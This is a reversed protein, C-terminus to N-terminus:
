SAYSQRKKEEKKKKDLSKMDVMNLNQGDRKLSFYDTKPNQCINFLSVHHFNLLIYKPNQVRPM